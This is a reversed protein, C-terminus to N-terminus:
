PVHEGDRASAPEGLELGGVFAQSPAPAHELYQRLM